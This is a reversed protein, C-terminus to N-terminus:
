RSAGEIPGRAKLRKVVKEFEKRALRLRSAVTGRPISLMNSIETVTLEELEYLVFAARLNMPLAELIEDLLARKEKQDVLEDAHPRPDVAQSEEVGPVERRRAVARRVDSAVRLATGFLFAREKDPTIEGLKKATVLWVLQTADDVQAEPVGLRRLSRWVFDLHTKVLRGLRETAQAVPTVNPTEEVPLERTLPGAARIM